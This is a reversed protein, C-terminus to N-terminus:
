LILGFCVLVSVRLYRSANWSSSNTHINPYHFGMGRYPLGLCSPFSEHLGVRGPERPKGQYNNM